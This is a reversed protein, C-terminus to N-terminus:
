RCGHQEGAPPSTPNSEWSCGQRVEFTDSPQMKFIYTDLSVFKQTRTTIIFQEFVDNINHVNRSYMYICNPRKGINNKINDMTENVYIIKYKDEDDKYYNKVEDNELLSTNIPQM